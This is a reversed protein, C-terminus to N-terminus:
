RVAERMRRTAGAAVVALNGLPSAAHASSYLTGKHAWQGGSLASDLYEGHAPTLRRTAKGVAIVAYIDSAHPIDPVVWAVVVAGDVSPARDWVTGTRRIASGDAM